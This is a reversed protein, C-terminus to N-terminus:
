AAELDQLDLRLRDLSLIVQAYPRVADTTDPLSKELVAVTTVLATRYARLEALLSAAAAKINANM